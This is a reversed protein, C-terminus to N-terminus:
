LSQVIMADITRLVSLYTLHFFYVRQNIFELQYYFLYIQHNKFLETPSFIIIKIINCKIQHHFCLSLQHHM